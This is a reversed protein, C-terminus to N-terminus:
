MCVVSIGIKVEHMQQSAKCPFLRLALMPKGNLGPQLGGLKLLREMNRLESLM